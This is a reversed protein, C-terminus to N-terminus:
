GERYEFSGDSYEVRQYVRKQTCFSMPDEMFDQPTYLKPPNDYLSIVRNRLTTNDVEIHKKSGDKNTFKVRM